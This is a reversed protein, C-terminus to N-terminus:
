EESVLWLAAAQGVGYKRGFRMVWADPNADRKRLRVVARRIFNEASEVAYDPVRRFFGLAATFVAENECLEVMTMPSGDGAALQEIIAQELPAWRANAREIHLNM